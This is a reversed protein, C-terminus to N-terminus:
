SHCQVANAIRAINPYCGLSFGGQNFSSYPDTYIEPLLITNQLYFLTFCICGCGKGEQIQCRGRRRRLNWEKGGRAAYHKLAATHQHTEWLDCMGGHHVCATCVLLAIGCGARPHYHDFMNSPTCYSLSTIGLEHMVWEFAAALRRCCCHEGPAAASRCRCCAHKCAHLVFPRSWFLSTVSSPLSKPSM